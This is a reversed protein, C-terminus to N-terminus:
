KAESLWREVSDAQAIAERAEDIVEQSMARQRDIAYQVASKWDAFVLATASEIPESDEVDDVLVWRLRDVSLVVSSEKFWRFPDDSTGDFQGLSFPPLYGLTGPPCKKPDLRM